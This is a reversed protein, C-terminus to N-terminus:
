RGVPELELRIKEALMLDRTARDAAIEEDLEAIAKDISALTPAEMALMFAVHAECEERQGHVAQRTAIQRFPLIGSAQRRERRHAYSEIDQILERFAATVKEVPVGIDIFAFAIRYLHEFPKRKGVSPLIDACLSAISAPIPTRNGKRAGLLTMTRLRIRESLSVTGFAPTFTSPLGSAPSAQPMDTGIHGAQQRGLPESFSHPTRM